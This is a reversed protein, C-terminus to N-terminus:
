VGGVKGNQVVFPEFLEDGFGSGYSMGNCCNAFNTAEELGTWNTPVSSSSISEPNNQNTSNNPVMGARRGAGGGAASPPVSNRQGDRFGGGTGM